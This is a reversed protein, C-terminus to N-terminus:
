KVQYDLQKRKRTAWYATAPIIITTPVTSKKPEPTGKLNHIGYTLTLTLMSPLIVASTIALTKKKIKTALHECSRMISGGVLFTYTAQKLAATSSNFLEHTEHYNIAFVLGGMIGAGILGAKYDIFKKSVNAFKKPFSKNSVMQELEPM